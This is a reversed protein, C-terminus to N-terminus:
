ETPPGIAAIWQDLVGQDAPSASARALALVRRAEAPDVCGALRIAMAPESSALTRVAELAVADCGEASRALETLVSRTAPFAPDLGNAMEAARQRAGARLHTRVALGRLAQDVPGVTGPAALGADTAALILVPESGNAALETAMALASAGDPVCVAAEGAGVGIRRGTTCTMEVSGRSVEVRTGYLDRDVAFVTGTVRIQALDTIVELPASPDYSNPEVSAVLRGGTWVIRRGTISGEGDGSVAIGPRLEQWEPTAAISVTPDARHETWWWGAAALVAAAAAVGGVFRRVHRPDRARLQQRFLVAAVHAEIEAESPDLARDLDELDEPGIPNM